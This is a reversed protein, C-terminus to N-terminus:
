VEPLYGYVTCPLSSGSHRAMRAETVNFGGNWCSHSMPVSHNSTIRFNLKLM